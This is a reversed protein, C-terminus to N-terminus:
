PAALGRALPCGSSHKVRWWGLLMGLIGWRPRSHWHQCPREGIDEAAVRVWRYREPAAVMSELLGRNAEEVEGRRALEEQAERLRVALGDRVRELEAVGLIRPGGVAPVGWEIGARPFASAFLEGLRKELLAIQRRLELRVRRDALPDTVRESPTPEAARVPEELSGPLEIELLEEPVFGRRGGQISRLLRVRYRLAIWGQRGDSITVKPV